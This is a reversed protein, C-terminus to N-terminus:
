PDKPPIRILSKEQKSWMARSAPDQSGLWPDFGLGRLHFCPTWVVTGAPFEGKHSIKQNKKKQKRKYETNQFTDMYILFSFHRKTMFSLCLVISFSLSSFPPFFAALSVWASKFPFSCSYSDASFICVSLCPGKFPIFAPM